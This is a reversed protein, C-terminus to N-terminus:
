DTEKESVTFRDWLKANCFTDHTLYDNPFLKGEKFTLGSFDYLIFYVISIAINYATDLDLYNLCFPVQM